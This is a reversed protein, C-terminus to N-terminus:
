HKGAWIGLCLLLGTILHLGINGMMAPVLGTSQKQFRRIRLVIWILLPLPILSLLIQPSFVKFLVCALITLYAFCISGLYVWMGRNGGGSRVLWNRKGAARDPAIDPFENLILVGMILFGVPVGALFAKWALHNTQLLYSGLVALPGFAAGVALEGWGRGMGYTNTASYSYGLVTGTIGILIIYLNNRWITGVIVAGLGIGFATLAWKRVMPKSLERNQIVRSGGNFPSFNRNLPDSGDADYYDNIMNSGAHTAVVTVLALCLGLLSFFGERMALTVGVLVPIVSASFFPARSAKLWLKFKNM